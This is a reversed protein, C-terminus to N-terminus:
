TQLSGEAIVQKSPSSSAKPGREISVATFNYGTVNGSFAVSATGTHNNLLGISIVSAPQNGNTQLLWGQYVQNGNLPPLGHMELVTVNQSPFYLLEGTAGPASARGQVTYTTVASAHQQNTAQVLQQQLSTVQHSLSLNLAGLGGLLCFMLVAAAVLVRPVWRQRARRSPPVTRSRQTPMATLGAEEHIANIVRRELSPPPNVQPVSLPLFAVASRLDQVLRTCKMCQMLHSEAEHREAPTVADLVYAGSLEEFQECTM